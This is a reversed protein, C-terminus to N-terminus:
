FVITSTIKFAFNDRSNSLHYPGYRYFVGAGIGSFSSKMLADIRIGSEYYGKEAAHMNLQHSEAHALNGWMMNHVLIIEPAFNKTKILLSKFNHQLHVAVFESHQFENTRMTEFTQPAAITFKAWTGRANYLLPLPVDEPIYGAIAAISFHGVNQIKFTKDVRADFRTYSFQGAGIDDFGRTVKFLFVPFRGGLSIERQPMRVLKEGPAYRLQVGAETLDFDETYLQVNESNYSTFRYGDFSKVFQQNGFLTVSLNRIFRGSVSAEFKERRDMRNIFFPYLNVLSLGGAAPIDFQNGGTEQVDNQYNLKLDVNRKRYLHLLLDGGYKSHKDHFGYAYYGGVSFRESLLNSTHLGGGLRYGEFDNYAMLRSLDFSVYGMNIKGTTLAEFGKLKRDLNEAKGVSDIVHYTMLEKQDLERERYQNWVSDPRNAAGSAMLLTVPTFESKKLPADLKLNKIYSRGEGIVPINAVFVSGMDITSNLQKPFWKRQDVYEYQQQIRISYSSTDAPQAIVNQIAYGNTNIFLQGRMADFNKGRRPQFTITFVTDKGIYTTDELIFLYKSISRDSLPSMYTGGFLEVSEGYFSFSQLQTGLLFLDTRKLGSVRNAIVTEESKDPPYFKRHSVSEMLFLYQQGFFHYADKQMSDLEAFKTTDNVITSDLEGGFVLKNYSDYTFPTDSEPNNQKKNEIAKKIIREAPNVGPRITVENLLNEKEMMSLMMKEDSIYKLELSQYGVLNLIITATSDELILSFYGDIDSYTGNSTGQEAIAVFALGSGNKADTIKGQFVQGQSSVPLLFLLILVFPFCLKYPMIQRINMPRDHHDITVCCYSYKQAM